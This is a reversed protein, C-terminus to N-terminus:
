GPLYQLRSNSKLVGNLFDWDLGAPANGIGLRVTTPSGNPVTLIIKYPYAADTADRGWGFVTLDYGGDGRLVCSNSSMYDSTFRHHGAGDDWAMLFFAQWQFLAGGPVCAVNMNFSVQRGGDFRATAVGAVSNKYSRIAPYQTWTMMSQVFASDCTGDMAADPCVRLTDTGIAKGWWGYNFAGTPGSNRWESAVRGNARILRVLMNTNAPAGTVAVRAPAVDFQRTQAPPNVETALAPGALAFTALVTAPILVHLRM